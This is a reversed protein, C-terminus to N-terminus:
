RLELMGFWENEIYSFKNNVKDGKEETTLIGSNSGKYCKTELIFKSDILIDVMKAWEPFDIILISRVQTRTWVEFSSHYPYRIFCNLVFFQLESISDMHSTTKSAKALLHTMKKEKQSFMKM